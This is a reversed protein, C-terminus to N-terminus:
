HGGCLSCLLTRHFVTLTMYPFLLCKNQPDSFVYLYGINGQIMEEEEEEEEEEEQEQEEEFSFRKLCFNYLFHFYL